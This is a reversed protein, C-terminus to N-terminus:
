FKALKDRILSARKEEIDENEASCPCTVCLHGTRSLTIMINIDSFELHSFLNLAVGLRLAFLHHLAEIESIRHGYRLIGYARGVYDYIKNPTENMLQQRLGREAAVLVNVTHQVRKFIEDETEGLTSQNWIRIVAGAPDANEGFVGRVAMALHAGGRAVPPLNESLFLAPLHLMTSLQLGTGLNSPNATLFGLENDFAFSLTNGLQAEIQRATEWADKLQLGSRLVQIKLHDEENILFNEKEGAIGLGSARGKNVHENSVLLRELLIRRDLESFDAMRRTVVKSDTLRNELASVIKQFVEEKSEETARGPFIFDGVNRAFRARASLVVDSEPADNSLWPATCGALTSTYNEAV